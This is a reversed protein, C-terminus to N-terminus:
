AHPFLSQALSGASFSRKAAQISAVSVFSPDICYQFVPEPVPSLYWIAASFLYMITTLM